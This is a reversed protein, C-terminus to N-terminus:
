HVMLAAASVTIGYYTALLYSKYKPIELLNKLLEQCTFAM